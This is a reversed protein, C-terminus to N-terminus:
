IAAPNTSALSVERGRTDRLQRVQQQVGRASVWLGAHVGDEESLADLDFGGGLLLDLSDAQPAAGM